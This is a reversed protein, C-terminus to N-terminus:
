LQGVQHVHTMQVVQLASPHTIALLALAAQGYSTM